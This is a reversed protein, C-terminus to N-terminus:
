NLCQNGSACLLDIIILKKARLYVSTCSVKKIYRVRVLIGDKDYYDAETGFKNGKQDLCTLCTVVINTYKRRMKRPLKAKALDVLRKKIRFAKTRQNQKATSNVEESLQLLSLFAVLHDKKTKYATFSISISIELLCVKLSYINHQM